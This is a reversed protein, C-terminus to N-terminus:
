RVLAVTRVTLSATSSLTMSITGGGRLDLASAIIEGQILTTNGSNGAIKLNQYLTSTMATGSCTTDRSDCNTIYITGILTLNGGGGLSHVNSGSIHAPASRDEFFLIGKYASALDSGVLNVDGNAGVSFIGNTHNYVVMGPQTSNITPDIACASVPCMQMYGHAGSQFGSTNDLYYIGPQFIGLNNQVNIGTTYIGPSYVQCPKVPAVPCGFSTDGPLLVVPTPAASLGTTTPPSVSALPDRIVSAPQVYHETVGVPTLWSPITASVPGGVVSFDGGTGACSGAAPGALHLDVTSGGGISAATTSSSNVQLTRAPGGCITITTNGTMSMAGNLTPHTVVIPIPEPALAIAADATAAVNSASVGFLSMFLTNVSKTITVEILAPSDGSLTVHGNCWAQASCAPFSVSTQAATFGNLVAYSNVSATATAASGGNFLDMAGAQAAADAASQAQQKTVYLQSADLGLGAVGIVVVLSIAVLVIVSGQESKRSTNIRRRM